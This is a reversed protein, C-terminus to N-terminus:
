QPLTQNASNKKLVSKILKEIDSRLTSLLVTDDAYRIEPKEHCGIVLADYKEKEAFERVNRMINKTYINFLYLSLICGNRVEQGMCIWDSIENEM